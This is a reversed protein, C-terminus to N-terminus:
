AEGRRKGARLAAAAIDPTVTAARTQENRLAGPFYMSTLRHTHVPADAAPGVQNLRRWERV